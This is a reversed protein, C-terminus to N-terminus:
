ERISIVSRVSRGEDGFVRADLFGRVALEFADEELGEEELIGVLLGEVVAVPFLVKFFCAAVPFSFTSDLVSAFFLL